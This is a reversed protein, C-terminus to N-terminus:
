AGKNSSTGLRQKLGAFFSGLPVVILDDELRDNALKAAEQKSSVFEVIQRRKENLPRGMEPTRFIALCLSEADTQRLRTSLKGKKRVQRIVKGIAKSRLGTELLRLALGIQCVDELDYLRRSGSGEAAGVSPAIGYEKGEVFKIIRWTEELALLQAAKETTFIKRSRVMSQGQCFVPLVKGNGITLQHPIGTLHAGSAANPQFPGQSEATEAKQQFSVKQLNGADYRLALLLGGNAVSPPCSEFAHFGQWFLPLSFAREIYSPVHSHDYNVVSHLNEM